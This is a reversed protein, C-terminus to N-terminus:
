EEMDLYDGLGAVPNIRWCRGFLGKGRQEERHEGVWAGQEHNEAGWQHLLRGLICM